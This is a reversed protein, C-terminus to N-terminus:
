DRGNSPLYVHVAPPNLPTGDKGTAEVNVKDGYKKPNWKALLKLDTEIILKDRQVDRSSEGSELMRATARLRNAIADYGIERARAIDTSVTEPVSAVRGPIIWDHVTRSAPMGESRCIEELPIGQELHQCIQEVIEPTYSSPRGM